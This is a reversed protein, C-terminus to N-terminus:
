ALDKSETALVPPGRFATPLELLAFAPEPPEIGDMNGETLVGGSEGRLTEPEGRVTFCLAPREEKPEGRLNILSGTRSTM